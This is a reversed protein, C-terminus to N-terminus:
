SYKFLLDSLLEVTFDNDKLYSMEELFQDKSVGYQNLVNDDVQHYFLIVVDNTTGDAYDTLNQFADMTTTRNIAFACINYRDGSELNYESEETGRAALYNDAVIKRVTNNESGEGYPYIFLETSLNHDKLIEKSNVIERELIGTSTESLNLHSDSHSAIYNGNQQLKQIDEWTMYAPYNGSIYSTVIGYTAKFNFTNLIETANLQSKWGDDFMLCVVTKNANILTPQYIWRHSPESRSLFTYNYYIISIVFISILSIALIYSRKM